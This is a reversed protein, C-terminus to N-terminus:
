EHGEAASPTYLFTEEGWRVAASHPPLSLGEGEFASDSFNVTVTIEEGYVTEQVLRDETLVSFGTMEMTVAKRAFASWVKTHRAIDEGYEEWQEGDLHYLPPVNYLLERLMRNKTEGKVKFTSWDWHYSTIMSRNYVLRFLPADFAPDLFLTRYTEKVPIRKAFHEAVGGSPSYYRGIYYESDKNEKMDADRWSFSPLEIGHAFALEGAAFDNGGESGTVMDYSDRIYAIRKLRAELDARQDTLRGPTYDDYIEGTADCDIFWSNFPLGTQEVVQEMRSEVAPMALTPNLKRGVGQFGEEKEGDKGTVSAEEYLSADDFAATIWEEKGPEHISHYSDYSGILFGQNLAEQVLEPKAFAQEWSNLGIWARDLGAERISSILKTTEGDTWGEPDGFAQPILAAMAKKADGLAKVPDEEETNKEGPVTKEEGEASKEGKPAAGEAGTGESGPAAERLEEREGGPVAEEGEKGGSEGAARIRGAAGPLRMIDSLTRCITNKQYESVYDQSKLEETVAEFEQGSETEEALASLADMVPSGAARRYEAWDIDEPAILFDGWLYIFPAGFLKEVQPNDAAKEELTVFKGQEKVYAQYCKAISVPDNDTLYVRFRAKREEEISPYERRISATLSGGGDTEEFSLWTHFPEEMVIVAAYDGLEAAAFPMSLQELVFFDQGTLYEEWVPSSAPVRKGEGLPLYYSQASLATWTFSSDEPTEPSVSVSLYEGCNEATVATRSEPYRWTMGGEETQLGSVEAPEGGPSIFLRRSDAETETEIDEEKGPETCSFERDQEASIGTATIELTSPNIQYDAGYLRVAGAGLDAKGDEALETQGTGAGDAERETGPGAPAGCGSLLLLAFSLVALSLRLRGRRARETFFPRKGEQIDKRCIKEAAFEQGARYTRM